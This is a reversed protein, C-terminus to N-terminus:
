KDVGVFRCYQNVEGGIKGKGRMEREKNIQESTADIDTSRLGLGEREERKGSRM